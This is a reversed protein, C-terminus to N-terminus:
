LTGYKRVYDIADRLQGAAAYCYEVPTEAPLAEYQLCWPRCRGFALVDRVRSSSNVRRMIPKM